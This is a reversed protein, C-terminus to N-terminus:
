VSPQHTRGSATSCTSDENKAFSDANGAPLTVKSWASTIRFMLWRHCTTASMNVLHVDDSDARQQGDTSDLREGSIGEFEGFHDPRLSRVHLRALIAMTRPPANVTAQPSAPSGPSASAAGPRQRRVM